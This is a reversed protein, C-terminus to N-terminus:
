IIHSVVLECLFQVFHASTMSGPVIDYTVVGDLTLVPVISYQQGCVLFHHQICRIGIQSWGMNRQSTCWNRASEDIFMLMDPDPVEDAIKNMFAARLLDNRELANASVSKHTFGMWKLTCTLTPISVLIQHWESLELQIKDLYISHHQKLLTAIFKLDQPTFIHPRSAKQAHPNYPVGYIHYYKMSQYVVTKKIGLINSIRKVTFGHGSLVPIRAKLDHSLSSPMYSVIHSLEPTWVVFM